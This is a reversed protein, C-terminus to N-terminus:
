CPNSLFNIREGLNGFEPFPYDFKTSRILKRDLGQQYSAVPLVTLLGLVLGHEDFTNSFVYQQNYANANGAQNAQPTTDDSSSTQVVTTIGLPQKGGGLYEPRDLRYDKPRIGFHSSIAEIYRAGGRAAKEYYRQLANTLRLDNISFKLRAILSGNPDINARATSTGSGDTVSTQLYKEDTAGNVILTEDAFSGLTSIVKQQKSNDFEVPASNSLYVDPGRQLFPLASTFYDKKWARNCLLKHGLSIHSEIYYDDSNSNDKWVPSGSTFHYDEFLPDQLNQDRYFSDYIFLYARIRLSDFKDQADILNYYYESDFTYTPNEKADLNIGDVTYFSGRNFPYGLFDLLDLYSNVCDLRSNFEDWLEQWDESSQDVARVYSDYLNSCQEMLSGVSSSTFYPHIVIDTGEKGGTIFHEFESWILRLPVYFYHQYVNVRHMIPAILPQAKMIYENGVKFTDHPLVDNVFFPVIKKMNCSLKNEYSLNFQNRKIRRLSLSNFIFGRKAM